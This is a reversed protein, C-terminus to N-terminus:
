DYPILPKYSKFRTMDGKDFKMRRIVKEKGHKDNESVALLGHYIEVAAFEQLRDGRVRLFVTRCGGYVEWADICNLYLNYQMNPYNESNKMYVLRDEEKNYIYLRRVENAGRAAELSVCTLDYYGDHNFDSIKPDCDIADSKRFRIQQKLSWRVGARAYFRIIVYISDGRSYQSVEVKNHHKRGIHLSDVFHEDLMTTDQRPVALMVSCVFPFFWM